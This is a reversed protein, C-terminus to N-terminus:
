FGMISKNEVKKVLLSNHEVVHLSEKLLVRPRHQSTNGCVINGIYGYLMNESYVYNMNCIYDYVLNETLGYVMNVIYGYM